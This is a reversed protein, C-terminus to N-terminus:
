YRFASTVKGKDISVNVRDQRLDATGGRQDGDRCTVRLVLHETEAKQRAESESLGVYGTLPPDTLGQPTATSCSGDKSCGSLLGLLLSLVVLGRV